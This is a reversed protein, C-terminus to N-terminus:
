VVVGEPGQAGEKKFNLGEPESREGGGREPSALTYLSYLIKFFDKRGRHLPLPACLPSPTIVLFKKVVVRGFFKM